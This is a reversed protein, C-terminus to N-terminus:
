DLGAVQRLSTDLQAVIRAQRARYSALEAAGRAAHVRSDAAHGLAEFVRALRGHATARLEVSCDEGLLAQARRADALAADSRGLQYKCWALDARFVASMSVLGDSMADPLWAELECLAQAHLGQVLLLQGRMMRAMSRLSHMDIYTDFHASSEVGMLAQRIGESGAGADLEFISAIRVQGGAIWARHRLLASVTPEDGDALAHTRAREYWPQARDLRACWHYARGAVLCAQARASHDRPASAQLAEAVRGALDPLDADGDGTYALWASCLATLTRVQAAQSLAHARKIRDRADRSLNRSHELMGEALCLWAALAADTTHAHQSRIGVLAQQADHFHGFRALLGAREAQLCGSEGAIRSVAIAADLRSLARSSFRESM